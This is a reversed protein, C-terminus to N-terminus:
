PGTDEPFSDLLRILDPRRPPDHACERPTHGALAPIPEDLWAAEHTGAREQLAAAIAPDAAPDLFTAASAAPSRAGLQQVARFDGAPDRTEHLVTASPDLKGITALVREFRAESNAHVHLEDGRLEINARIRQMGHTIVHEFWVLAGDPEDDHRDFEDDLAQALRVPDAIRLTADCLVLSEGETNQLVPTLLPRSLVSAHEGRGRAADLM